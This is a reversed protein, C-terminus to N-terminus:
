APAGVNHTKQYEEILREVVKEVSRVRFDFSLERLIEATEKSIRVTTAYDNTM